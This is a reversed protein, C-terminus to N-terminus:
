VQVVEDANAMIWEPTLVLQGTGGTLIMFMEHALSDLEPYSKFISIEGDSAIIQQRAAEHKGALEDFRAKQEPTLTVNM